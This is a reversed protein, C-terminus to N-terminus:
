VEQMATIAQTVVEGGKGAITRAERASSSAQQSNRAVEIVTANMEEMSTAAQVTQSSQRDAGGAIQTSSASLQESASALQSSSDTIRGIVGSMQEAMADVSRGLGSVEDKIERGFFRIKIGARTTLDGNAFKEVTEKIKLLPKIMQNNTSWMFLVALLTSICVAVAMIALGKMASHRASAAIEATLEEAATVIKPTHENALRMLNAHFVDKDRMGANVLAKRKAWFAEAAEFKALLGPNKVAKLGLAASGDRLGNFTDDFEVVAKDLMDRVAETEVNSRAYREMLFAMNITRARELGALNISNSYSPDKLAVFGKVIENMKAVMPYTTNEIEMMVDTLSDGSTMAEEMGNRMTEWERGVNDLKALVSAEKIASVNETGERLSQIVRGYEAKKNQFVQELEEEGNLIHRNLIYNIEVARKRLSGAEEVQSYKESMGGVLFYIIPLQIIFLLILFGYSGVFRSKVSQLNM